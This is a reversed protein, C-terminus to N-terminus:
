NKNSQQSSNEGDLTNALLKSTDLGEVQVYETLFCFLFIFYFPNVSWGCSPLLLFIDM